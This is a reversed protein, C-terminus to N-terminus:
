VVRAALAFREAAEEGASLFTFCHVERYGFDLFQKDFTIVRRMIAFVLRTPEVLIELCGSWYFNTIM